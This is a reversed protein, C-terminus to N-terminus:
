YQPSCSKWFVCVSEHHLYRQFTHSLSFAKLDVQWLSCLWKVLFNIRFNKSYWVDVCICVILSYYNLKFVVSASSLSHTHTHTYLTNLEYYLLYKFSYFFSAFIKTYMDKLRVHEIKTNKKKNRTRDNMMRILYM